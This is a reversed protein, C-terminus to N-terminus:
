RMAFRSIHALAALPNGVFANGITAYGSLQLQQVTGGPLRM